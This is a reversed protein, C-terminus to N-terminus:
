ESLRSRCTDTHSLAVPSLERHDPSTNSSIAPEANQVAQIELDATDPRSSLGGAMKEVGDGSSSDAGSVTCATFVGLM